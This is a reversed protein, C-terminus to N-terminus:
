DTDSLVLMVDVLARGQDHEGLMVAIPGGEVPFGHDAMAKFLLDEEKIHHIEDVFETFFNVFGAVREAAADTGTGAELDAHFADLRDLAALILEHEDMLTEIADM